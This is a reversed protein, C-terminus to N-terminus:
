MNYHAIDCQASRLVAYYLVYFHLTTSVQRYEIIRQLMKYTSSWRTDVDLIPQLVVKGVVDCLAAWQERKQPSKRIKVIAARLKAIACQMVAHEEENLPPLNSFINDDNSDDDEESDIPLDAVDDNDCVTGRIM